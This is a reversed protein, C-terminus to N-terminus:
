WPADILFLGRPHSTTLSSNSGQNEEDHLEFAEKFVALQETTVGSAEAMNDVLTAWSQLSSRATLLLPLLLLSSASAQTAM